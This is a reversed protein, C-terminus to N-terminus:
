GKWGYSGEMKIRAWIIDNRGVNPRPYKARMVFSVKDAVEDKAIEWFHSYAWGEPSKSFYTSIEIRLM